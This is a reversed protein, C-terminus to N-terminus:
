TQRINGQFIERSYKEPINRRFIEASYKYGIFPYESYKERINRCFIEVSYKDRINLDSCHLFIM